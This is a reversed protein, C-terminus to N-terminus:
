NGKWQECKEDHVHFLSCSHPWWLIQLALGFYLQGEWRKRKLKVKKDGSESKQKHVHFLSCSHPWCLKCLQFLAWRVKEWIKPLFGFFCSSIWFILSSIWFLLLIDLLNWSSIWLFLTALLPNAFGLWLGGSRRTEEVFMVVWLIHVDGQM